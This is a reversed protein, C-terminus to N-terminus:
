KRRQTCAPGFLSGLLSLKHSFMPTLLKYTSRARKSTFGGSFKPFIMLVDIERLTKLTKCAWCKRFYRHWAQPDNQYWKSSRPSFNSRNRGVKRRKTMQGHGFTHFDLKNRKNERLCARVGHESQLDRPSSEPFFLFARSVCIQGVQHFVLNGKKATANKRNPHSSYIVVLFVPLSMQRRKPWPIM